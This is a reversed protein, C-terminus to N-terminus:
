GGAMEVPVVVRGQEYNSYNSPSVGLGDAMARIAIQLEKRKAKIKQMFVNNSENIITVTRKNEESDDSAKLRNQKLECDLNNCEFIAGHSGNKGDWLGFIYKTPNTCTQCNMKDNPCYNCNFPCDYALECNMRKEKM